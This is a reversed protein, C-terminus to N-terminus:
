RVFSLLDVRLNRDCAGYYDNDFTVRLTHSGAPINAWATYAAWRTQSVYSSLIRNGDVWVSM